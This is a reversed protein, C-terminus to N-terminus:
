VHHISSGLPSIIIGSISEKPINFPFLLLLYCTNGDFILSTYRVEMVKNLWQDEKCQQLLTKSFILSKKCSQQM